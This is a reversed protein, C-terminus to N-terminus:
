AGEIRARMEKSLRWLPLGAKLIQIDQELAKHKDRWLTPDLIPGMDLAREAQRLAIDLELVSIIRAAGIVMMTTERHDVLASEFAQNQREKHGNM